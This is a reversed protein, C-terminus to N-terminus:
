EGSVKHLKVVIYGNGGSLAVNCNATLQAGATELRMGSAQYDHHGSGALVAVSDSGRTVTWRNTGDVSWMIESISMSNITEGATAGTVLNVTDAGTARLVIYGGPKGQNVTISM